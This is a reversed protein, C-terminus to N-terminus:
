FGARRKGLTTIAQGDLLHRGAFGQQSATGIADFLKKRGTKAPRIPSHFAAYKPAIGRAGTEAASKRATGASAVIPHNRRFRLKAPQVDFSPLRKIPMARRIPQSHLTM